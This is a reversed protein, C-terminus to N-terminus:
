RNKLWKDFGEKGIKIRRGVRVVPFQNSNVLEYAQRKGIGLMNQIDEVNLIENKGLPIELQDKLVDNSAEKIDLLELIKNFTYDPLNKLMNSINIADENMKQELTDKLLVGEVGSESNIKKTDKIDLAILGENDKYLKNINEINITERMKNYPNYYYGNSYTRNVSFKAAIKDLSKKSVEGEKIFLKNALKLMGSKIIKDATFNELQFYESMTKFRRYILFKDAKDNHVNNSTSSRLLYECSILSTSTRKGKSQGNKLFYEKQDFAMDVLSMCRDSFSLTRTGKKECTLTIKNKTFDVDSRRINLLETLEYGNAGEFLLRIIVADQPNILQHEISAIELDSFYLKLESNVFQSFWDNTIKNSITLNKDKNEKIWKMYSTIFRGYAQASGVSIPSLITMFQSIDRENFVSLDKGLDSECKSSKHFLWEYTTQTAKPFNDLYGRKLEQNYIM